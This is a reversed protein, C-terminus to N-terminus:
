VKFERFTISLRDKVNLKYGISHMYVSQCGGAMIFVDGHKLEVSDTIPPPYIGGKVIEHFNFICSEGLSVSVVASGKVLTSESDSHANIGSRKGAPYWNLLASNFNTGLMANIRKMLLELPPYVSWPYAKTVQGSYPYDVGLSCIRRESNKFPVWPIKKIIQELHRDSNQIVVDTLFRSDPSKKLM